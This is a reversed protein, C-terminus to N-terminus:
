RGLMLIKPESYVLDMSRRGKDSLRVLTRNPDTRDAFRVVWGEAALADVWRLATSQPVSAALALTTEPLAGGDAQALYLETLMDWAPDGFLSEGFFRRRRIKLRSASLAARAADASIADETDGSRKELLADIKSHIEDLQRLLDGYEDDRANM